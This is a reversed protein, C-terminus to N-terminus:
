PALAARTLPAGAPAPALAAGPGAGAPAGTVRAANAGQRAAALAAQRALFWLSAQAIVMVALLFVPVIIVYSLTLAGADSGRRGRCGAPRM